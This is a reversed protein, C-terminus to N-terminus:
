SIIKLFDLFFNTGTLQTEWFLNKWKILKLHAYKANSKQIDKKIEERNDIVEKKITKKVLRLGYFDIEILYKQDERENVLILM